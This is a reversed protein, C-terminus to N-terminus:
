TTLWIVGMTALSAVVGVWILSLIASTVIEYEHTNNIRNCVMMGVFSLVIGVAVPIALM